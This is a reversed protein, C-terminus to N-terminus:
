AKGFLAAQKQRQRKASFVVPVINRSIQQSFFISNWSFLYASFYPNYCLRVLDLSNLM